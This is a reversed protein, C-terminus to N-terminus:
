SLGAYYTPKSPLINENKPDQLKNGDTSGAEMLSMKPTVWELKEPAPV